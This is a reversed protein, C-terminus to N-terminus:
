SRRQDVSALWQTTFAAARGYSKVIEAIIAKEVLRGFGFFTVKVEGRVVRKMGGPAAEFAVSGSLSVKDPMMSPTTRWRGVLTGPDYVLEEDYWARRNGFVKASEANADRKPECHIRRVIQGPSRQLGLLTRGLGLAEGLAVNFAEDFYLAEYEGPAIGEFTHEIELKMARLM